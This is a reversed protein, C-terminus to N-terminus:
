STRRGQGLRMEGGGHGGFGSIGPLGGLGGKSDPSDNIGPPTAMATAEINGLGAKLSKFRIEVRKADGADGGKGGAGGYGGSGGNCGCGANGNGGQSGYGGDGGLGGNGGMRKVYTSGTTLSETITIIARVSHGGKIGTGGPLGNYGAHCQNHQPQGNPAPAPKTTADRGSLDIVTNIGLFAKGIKIDWSDSEAPDLRLTSNDEMYLESVAALEGKKPSYVTGSKICLPEQPPSPPPCVVAAYSYASVTLLFSFSFHKLM